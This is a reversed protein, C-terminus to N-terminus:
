SYFTIRVAGHGGRMGASRVDACPWASAGPIGPVNYVCGMYEYCGCPSFSQWCRWSQPMVGQYSALVSDLEGYGNSAQNRAAPFFNRSFQLCTPSTASFIGASVAITQVPASSCACNLCCIFWTCSIGGSVNLDGSSAPVQVAALPGGINCIIGCGLGTNTQCFLCSVLCCYQPTSTTCQTFGGFGAESRVCGNDGSNFICGVSCNGRGGACLSNAETACGAWGCIFSSGCVRVLKKSYAGSNGPVGTQSCCCQRGGAGSSGWIEVVACGTGPSNWCFQCRGSHTDTHTHYFVSGSKGTEVGRRVATNRTELLVSLNAM